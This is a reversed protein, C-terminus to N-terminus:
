GLGVRILIRKLAPSQNLHKLFNRRATKLFRNKTMSIENLLHIGFVKGGTLPFRVLSYQRLLKDEGIDKNSKLAKKCIQYLYIIDEVSTNLGQAGTPPMVHASEAILVTRKSVIAKTIQSLVPWKQKGSLLKLKGRAGMSKKSILADFQNKRLSYAENIAEYTDMWVVTSKLQSTSSRLPIITFPGGTDLIETTRNKHSESHSVQFVMALQNYSRNFTSIKERRRISSDRGECSILLQGEFVKGKESTVRINQDFAYHDVISDKNHLVFNKKERLFDLLTTSVIKNPINYGFSELGVENPNFVVSATEENSKLSGTDIIEMEKLPQAFPKINEWVGIEKLVSIAPNLFATTRQDERLKSIDGPEFCQVQLKERCFLSSTILGSIGLGSIIINNSKIKRM